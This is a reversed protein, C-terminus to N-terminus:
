KSYETLLCKYEITTTQNPIFAAFGSKKILGRRNLNKGLEKYSPYVAVVKLIYSHLSRM